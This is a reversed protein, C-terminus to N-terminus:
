GALASLRYEVRRHTLGVEPIMFEDGVASFGEREYFGLASIRANAWVLEAGRDIAREIGARLLRRGVGTGTFEPETAMGRLQITRPTRDDRLDGALWTSVAIVTGNVLIGLHVTDIHDDGSWVVSADAQGDRLARRRLDHTDAAELVVVTGAASM